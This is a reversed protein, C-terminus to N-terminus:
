IAQDHAFKIGRKPSCGCVLMKLHHRFIRVLNKCNLSESKWDFLNADFVNETYLISQM